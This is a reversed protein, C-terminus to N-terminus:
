TDKQCDDPYFEEDFLIYGIAQLVSSSEDTEIGNDILCQEASKIKENTINYKCRKALDEPKGLKRYAELERYDKKCM